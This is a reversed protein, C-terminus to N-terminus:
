AGAKQMRQEALEEDAWRHRLREAEVDMAEGIQFARRALIEDSINSGRLLTIMAQMALGAYNEVRRLRQDAYEEM